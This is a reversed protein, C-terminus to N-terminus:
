NRHSIYLATIIIFITPAQTCHVSPLPLLLFSSFIVFLLKTIQASPMINNFIDWIEPVRCCFEFNWCVIRFEAWQVWYEVECGIYQVWSGGESRRRARGFVRKWLSDGRFNQIQERDAWEILSIWFTLSINSYKRQIIPLVASVQDHQLELDSPSMSRTHNMKARKHQILM